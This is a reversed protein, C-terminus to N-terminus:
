VYLTASTRTYENAVYEDNLTNAETCPTFLPLAAGPYCRSPPAQVVTQYIQGGTQPPSILDYLRQGLILCSQAPHSPLSSNVVSICCPSPNSSLVKSKAEIASPLPAPSLTCYPATRHPATRITDVATLRHLTSLHPQPSTGNPTKSRRKASHSSFIPPCSSCRLSMSM